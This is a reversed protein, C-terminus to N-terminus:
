LIPRTLNHLDRLSQSQWESARCTESKGSGIEKRGRTESGMKRRDYVALKRIFVKRCTPSKGRMPTASGIGFTFQLRLGKSILSQGLWIL